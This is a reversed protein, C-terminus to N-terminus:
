TVIIPRVTISIGILLVARESSHVSPKTFWNAHYAPLGVTQEASTHSELAKAAATPVTYHMRTGSLVPVCCFINSTAVRLEDRLTVQWTEKAAFALAAILIGILATLTAKM